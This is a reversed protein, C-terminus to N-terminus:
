ISAFDVPHNCCKRLEMLVNNLSRKTGDQIASNLESYNKELINIYLDRQSDTLACPVEVWKKTPMSDKLVNAKLRRLMRPKLIEPIRAIKEDITLGRESEIPSFLPDDKPDSFENPDIYHLLSFLELVNNQFPTGTLLLWFDSSFKKLCSALNCDLTKLRHAEDIVITSWKIKKLVAKDIQVIEYSTVLADFLTKGKSSYLEHAQICKRSDKDGQYVVISLDHAWRDFEKEWQLLISKPVIVLAPSTTLSGKIIRNLFCVVQVTKGLGMEDALIVSRRSKFNDLIWQLGQVQYNYLANEPVMVDINMPSRVTNKHRQVLMSVASPVGETFYPEWTADCYDLGKWKVLFEYGEFDANNDFSALVDCLGDYGFKRRCAIARDVEFWEPKRQDELYAEKPLTNKSIYARARQPEFVRLWDLPVWCDHHHSLSHWKVLMQYQFDSEQLIVRRCGVLTQVKKLAYVETGKALSAQDIKCLPCELTGRSDQM